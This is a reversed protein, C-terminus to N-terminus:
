RRVAKHELVFAQARDEHAGNEDGSMQKALARARYIFPADPQVHIAQSYDEIAGAHDGAADRLQGRQYYADSTAEISISRSFDAEARKVDSRGL